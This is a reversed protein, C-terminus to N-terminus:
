VDRDNQGSRRAEEIEEVLRAINAASQDGSADAAKVAAIRPCLHQHRTTWDARQCAISCYRVHMCGGCLRYHSGELKGRHGCHECKRRRLKGVLEDFPRYSCFVSARTFADCDRSWGEHWALGFLIVDSSSNIEHADLYQALSADESETLNAYNSRFLGIEAGEHFLAVAVANLTSGHRRAQKLIRSVLYGCLQSHRMKDDADEDTMSQGIPGLPQGILPQPPFVVSCQVVVVFCETRNFISDTLQVLSGVEVPEVFHLRRFEAGDSLVVSQVNRSDWEPPVPPGVQLVQYTPHPFWIDCRRRKTQPGLPVETGDRCCKVFEEISCCSQLMDSPSYYGGGPPGDHWAAHHRVHIMGDLYEPGAALQATM